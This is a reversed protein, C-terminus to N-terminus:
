HRPQATIPTPRLRLWSRTAVFANERALRDIRERDQPSAPWTSDDFACRLFLPTGSDLATRVTPMSLSQVSKKHCCPCVLTLYVSDNM